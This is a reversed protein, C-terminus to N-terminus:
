TRRTTPSRPTSTATWGRPCRSAHRARRARDGPDDQGASPDGKVFWRGKEWELDEPRVELMAAAILERRTGCRAPSWRSRAAASRRRAAATPASGSRPRTPTATCSRSTRPRSASRRPSSRRSRRRTARARPRCRSGSSRRAPPTCRAARRRRGHGARRHGHAQAARRGRDRHLVVVGIGMLEGRARKEAQERRLEDYGAMEMALRMTPEYDGSDYEWGTKNPYPFQEPRIFNQLRLEAPDM